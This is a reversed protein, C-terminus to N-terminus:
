ADEGTGGVQSVVDGNDLTLTEDDPNWRAWHSASTALLAARQDDPWVVIEGSFGEANTFQWLRCGPRLAAAQDAGLPVLRAREDALSWETVLRWGRTGVM